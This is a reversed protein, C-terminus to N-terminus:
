IGRKLDSAMIKSDSSSPRDIGNWGSKQGMVVKEESLGMLRSPRIVDMREVCSLEVRPM